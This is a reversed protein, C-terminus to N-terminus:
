EAAVDDLAQLVLEFFGGSSIFIGPPEVLM